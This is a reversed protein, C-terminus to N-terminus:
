SSIVKADELIYEGNRKILSVAEESYARAIDGTTEGHIFFNIGRSNSEKLIRAMGRKYLMLGDAELVIDVSRGYPSVLGMLAIALFADAMKGAAVMPAYIHIQCVIPRERMISFDMIEGDSNGIFPVYSVVDEYMSRFLSINDGEMLIDPKLQKGSGARIVGEISVSDMSLLGKLTNMTRERPRFHDIMYMMCAALAECETNVENATGNANTKNATGNYNRAYILEQALLVTEERTGIYRIPDACMTGVAAPIWIEKYDYGKEILETVTKPFIKDKENSFYLLSRGEKMLKGFVSRTLYRERWTKNGLIIVPGERREGDIM